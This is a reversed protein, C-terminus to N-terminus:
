SLTRSPGLFAPITATAPKKAKTARAKAVRGELETVRNRLADLAAGLATDQQEVRSCIADAFVGMAKSIELVDDRLATLKALEDSAAARQRHQQEFLKRRETEVACQREFDTLEARERDRRSPVAAVGDRSIPAVPTAAQSPASPCSLGDSASTSADARRANLRAERIIQEREAETM